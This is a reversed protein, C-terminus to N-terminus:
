KGWPGVKQVRYCDGNWYVKDSTASKSKLTEYIPTETIIELSGTVRDGQPVQILAQDDAIQIIGFAQIQCPPNEIWGGPGFYGTTRTICFCDGLDTDCAVESLDIPM